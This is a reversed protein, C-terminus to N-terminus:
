RSDGDLPEHSPPGGPPASSGLMAALPSAAAIVGGAIAWVVTWAAFVDFWAARRRGATPLNM